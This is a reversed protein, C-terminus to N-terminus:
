FLRVSELNLLAEKIQTGGGYGTLKGNSGIVRHCPIIIPIPNAGNAAGVARSASPQGIRRALEGYSIVNGYPINLLEEWVKRQFSTGEPMLPLDFRTLKKDFYARLQRVAEDVVGCCAVAGDSGAGFLISRLGDEDGAITLLGVPSEITARQIM